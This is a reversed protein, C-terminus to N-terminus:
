NYISYPFLFDGVIPNDDDSLPKVPQVTFSKKGDPTIRVTGGFIELLATGDDDRNVKGKYIVSREEGDNIYLRYSISKKSIKRVEAEIKLSRDFSNFTEQLLPTEKLDFYQFSASMTEPFYHTGHNGSGVMLKGNQGGYFCVSIKKKTVYRPACWAINPVAEGRKLKKKWSDEFGDRFTIAFLETGKPMVQWEGQRKFNLDASLIASRGWKVDRTAFPMKVDAASLLNLSNSQGLLPAEGFFMDGIDQSFAPSSVICSMVLTPIAIKLLM